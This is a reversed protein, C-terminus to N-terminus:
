QCPILVLLFGFISERPGCGKASAEEWNELENERGLQAASPDKQLCWDICDYLAVDLERWVVMPTKVM